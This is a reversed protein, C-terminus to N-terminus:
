TSIYSLARFEMYVHIINLGHETYYTHYERKVKHPCAHYKGQIRYVHMRNEGQAKHLDMQYEDTRMRNGEVSM